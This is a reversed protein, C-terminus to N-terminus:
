PRRFTYGRTKTYEGNLISYISRPSINLEKAAGALSEFPIEEGTSINVAVVKRRNPVRPNCAARNDKIKQKFVDVRNSLQNMCLPKGVHLCLYFDEADILKLKDNVFRVFEFSVSDCGYFRQNIISTHTSSNLEILHKTIRNSLNNTAGIYYFGNSFVMKYVCMAHNTIAPKIVTFPYKNGRM